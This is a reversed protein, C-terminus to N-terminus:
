WPEEENVPPAGQPLKRWKNCGPRECQVWVSTVVQPPLLPPPAVLSAADAM